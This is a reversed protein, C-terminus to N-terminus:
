QKKYPSYNCNIKVDIVESINAVVIRPIVIHHDKLMVKFSSEITFTGAKVIIRGKETHLHDVGHVNFVGTTSIDYVGDKTYDILENIKGKFTAYPFKDSEIYKENFHEQMLAKKFKFSKMPVKFQIEGTATNIVSNLSESHADIDEVPTSSFFSCNGGTALYIPQAQIIFAKCFSLLLILISTRM